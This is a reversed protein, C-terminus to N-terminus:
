RDIIAYRIREQDEFHRDWFPHKGGTLAEFLVVGCSWIDGSKSCVNRELREPALYRVDLHKSSGFGDVLELGFGGLVVNNPVVDYSDEHQVIRREFLIKRPTISNHSTGFHEHIYELGTLVQKFVSGIWCQPIPQQFQSMADFLNGGDYFHEIVYGELPSAFCDLVKM